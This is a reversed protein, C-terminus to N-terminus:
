RVRVATAAAGGHAATQAKELIPAPKPKTENARAVMADPAPATALVGPLRAAAAASPAGALPLAPPL